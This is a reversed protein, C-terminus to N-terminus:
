KSSKSINQRNLKNFSKQNQTRNLSTEFQGKGNNRSYAGQNLLGYPTLNPEDLFEYTTNSRNSLSGFAFKKGQRNNGLESGRLGVQEFIGGAICSSLKAAEALCAVMVALTDFSNRTDLDKIQQLNKMEDVIQGLNKFDILNVKHDHRTKTVFGKIENHLNLLYSQM